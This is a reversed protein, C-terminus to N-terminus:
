TTTITLTTGSLTFAEATMLRQWTQWKNSRYFRIYYRNSNWGYYIQIVETNSNSFCVLTGWGDSNSPLNAWKSDGGITCGIGNVKINNVDKVGSTESLSSWYGKVNIFCRNTKTDNITTSLTNGESEMMVKSFKSLWGASNGYRFYPIGTSSIYMQAIETNHCLSLVQGWENPQDTLIKGHCFSSTVGFKNWVAVTDDKTSSIINSHGVMSDHTHTKLSYNKLNSDHFTFILM